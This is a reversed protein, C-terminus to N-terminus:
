GPLFFASPDQHFVPSPSTKGELIQGLFHQSVSIITFIHFHADSFQFFSQLYRYLDTNGNLLHSLPRSTFIALALLLLVTIYQWDPWTSRAASRDPPTPIFTDHYSAPPALISRFVIIKKIARHFVLKPQLASCRFPIMILNKLFHLLQFFLLEASPASFTRIISIDSHSPHPLFAASNRFNLFPLLLHQSQLM